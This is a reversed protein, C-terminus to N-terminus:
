ISHIILDFVHFMSKLKSYLSWLTSSQFEKSKYKFYAKLVNECVSSTKKMECWDVFKKFALEYVEKSKEPIISSAAELANNEIDSCFDEDSSSM